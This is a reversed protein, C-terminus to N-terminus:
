SYDRETRNEWKVFFWSFVFIQITIEPIQILHEALSIKTYIM